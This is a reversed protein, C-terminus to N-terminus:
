VKGLKVLYGYICRIAYTFNRCYFNSEGLKIKYGYVDVIGGGLFKGSLEDIRILEDQSQFSHVGWVWDCLTPIRILYGSKLLDNMKNFQTRNLHRVKRMGKIKM